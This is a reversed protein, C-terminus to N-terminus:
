RETKSFLPHDLVGLLGLGKGTARVCGRRAAQRQDRSM